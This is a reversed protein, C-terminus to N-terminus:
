EFVWSINNKNTCIENVKDSSIPLPNESGWEFEITKNFNNIIIKQLNLNNNDINITAIHQCAKKNLNTLTIMFTRQSPMVIDGVDNQGIIYERGISSIVKNGRTLEKPAISEQIVKKNDLGRYDFNLKYHNRINDSLKFIEKEVDNYNTKPSHSFLFVLAVILLLGIAVCTLIQKNKLLNLIKEM